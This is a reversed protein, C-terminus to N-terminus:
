YKDPTYLKIKVQGINQSAGGNGSNSISYGTNGGVGRALTGDGQVVSQSGSGAVVSNYAQGSAGYAGNSTSVSLGQLGTSGGPNNTCISNVTLTSGIGGRGGGAWLQSKSTGASNRINCQVMFGNDGTSATFAGAGENQGQYLGTYVSRGSAGGGNAPGDSYGSWSVYDGDIVQHVATITGGLGGYGGIGTEQSYSNLLNGGSCGFHQTSAYAAGGGGGAQGEVYVQIYAIGQGTPITYTGSEDEGINQQLVYSGLNYETHPTTHSHRWSGGHKIHVERVTKWTGSVNVFPQDVTRWSGSEKIHLTM